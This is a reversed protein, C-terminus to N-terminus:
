HAALKGLLDVLAAPGELVVDARSLLEEPAEPSSVAIRWCRTGRTALRDLADFGTLDGYDDGAFAVVAWGEAAAEIVTGKDVKVNPHLEVSMRAQRLALHAATSESEAWDLVAREIAPYERYHLTLSLGKPEVRVGPPADLRARIALSEIVDRWAAADPHEWHSSNEIGELGYLGAVDLDDPLHEDLFSVPRGSVILVKGLQARLAVLAEIAGPAPLAREPDDVIPALSGDYDLALLTEGSRSRLENILREAPDEPSETRTM